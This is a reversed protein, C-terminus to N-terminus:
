QQRHTRPMTSPRLANEDFLLTPVTVQVSQSLTEVYPLSTHLLINPLETFSSLLAYARTAAGWMAAGGFGAM